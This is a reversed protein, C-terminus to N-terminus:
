KAGYGEVVKARQAMPKGARRWAMLGGQLSHATVGRGDLLRAYLRSRDGRPCVFVVSRGRFPVGEEFLERLLEEPYCVSHEIHFLEYAKVGRTDIVLPPENSRLSEELQEVTIDNATEDGSSALDYIDSHSRRGFREPQRKEIYSMYPELRDCAIFVLSPRTGDPRLEDHARCWELVAAFIAGTTPGALMGEHRVLLDLSELAQRSTVETIMAFRDKRFLPTEYLESYSRIGPQFDSPHAVVGICKTQSEHREIYDLLGGSSGGTGVGAVFYDIREVDRYLEVATTTEHARPNDLSTYQSTHRYKSPNEAVMRAIVELANDPDNVDPCESRGPLGIIDTDLYKLMAEVESVKVRTTVSTLGVGRRHALVRLAKATNGSSSEILTAGTRRMAEFDIHEILGKATRDKISGFPNMYELKAYVDIHEIGYRSGDIRLLPTDGITDEINQYIM